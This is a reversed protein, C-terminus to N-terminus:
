TEFSANGLGSACGAIKYWYLTATSPRAVVTTKVEAKNEM